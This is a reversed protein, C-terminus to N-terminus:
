DSLAPDLNERERIAMRRIFFIITILMPVIILLMVLMAYGAAVSDLHDPGNGMCVACAITTLTM